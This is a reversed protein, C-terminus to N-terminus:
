KQQQENLEKRKDAILQEMEDLDKLDAMNKFFYRCKTRYNYYKAKEKNREIWRKNAERKADTM